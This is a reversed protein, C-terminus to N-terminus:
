NKKTTIHKSYEKKVQSTQEDYDLYMTTKFKAKWLNADGKTWVIYANVAYVNMNGNKLITIFKRDVLIKIHRSLTKRTVKFLKELTAMSICISNTGDMESVLFEFISNAFPEERALLVKNKYNKKNYAYFPASLQKAEYENYDKNKNKTNNKELNVLCEQGDERRTKYKKEEHINDM